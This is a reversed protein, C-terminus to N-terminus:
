EFKPINFKKQGSPGNPREIKSRHIIGKTKPRRIKPRDNWVRISGGYELINM